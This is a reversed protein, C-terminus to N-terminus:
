GAAEELPFFAGASFVGARGDANREAQAALAYYVPRSLRGWLRGRVLAYPRGGRWILPNDRSLRFRDGLGTTFHIDGGDAREMETVVFPADEVAIKGREAPTILWHEGAEDCSLVSAFLRVLGPRLIPTGDYLWTGDRLIKIDYREDTM